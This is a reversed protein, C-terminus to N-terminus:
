VYYNYNDTSLCAKNSIAHIIGSLENSFDKNDPLAARSLCDAILLEKGPTYKIIMGYPTMFTTLDSSKRDLKLQWFGNKLDLVTFIKKGTMRSLLDESKPILFHERKICENLPKPDLCIRLAGNPKEVIQMNNVWDTPYEVSSIIGLSEMNKLEDKLRSHLSIPIRKRYHLSPTSNEKLAITCEGPLNGLGEFLDANSDIFTKRDSPFSQSSEISNLRKLLGFAICTQLGLIPQLND